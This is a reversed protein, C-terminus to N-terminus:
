KKKNEQEKVEKNPSQGTRYCRDSMSDSWRKRLQGINRKTNPRSDRAKEVLRTDDM